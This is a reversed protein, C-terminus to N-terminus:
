GKPKLNALDVTLIVANQHRFGTISDNVIFDDATDVLGIFDAADVLSKAAEAYDKTSGAADTNGLGDDMFKDAEATGASVWNLFGDTRGYIRIWTDPHAADPNLTGVYIDPQDAPKLTNYTFATALPVKQIKPKLGAKTLAVAVYSAVTADQASESSTGVVVTKSGSWKAVADKLVNPDFEPKDASAPDDLVRFPYYSESVTGQGLYLTDLVYQKDIAQRLGQRIALSQMPGDKKPNVEIWQKLVSPFSEIRFKANSKFRQVASPLQQHVFDLEGGELELQQTSADPMIKIVLSDYYPKPGWWKDNRTVVYEVGATWKTIQYPGSGETHELLWKKGLDDGVAHKALATPNTIKPGYPAALYDLFPATVSKLKVVFTLPDPTEYGAVTSLMYAPGENVKTRREFGAKVASSDLPTGDSFVVGDRLKFTYTLGDPSITWSTALQPQIKVSKDFAYQVLGEYASTTIQLGEGSYFIDPDTEQSDAFFATHLVRSKPETGSAGTAASDTSSGSSGCAALTSAVILTIPLLRAHRSRVM